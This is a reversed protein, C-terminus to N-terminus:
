LFRKFPTLKLVWSRFSHLSGARVNLTWIVCKKWSIMMSPGSLARQQQNGTVTHCVLERHSLLEHGTLASCVNVCSSVTLWYLFIWTAHSHKFSADSLRPPPERLSWLHHHGTQGHCTLILKEPWHPPSCCTRCLQPPPSHQWCPAPSGLRSYTRFTQIWTVSFLSGPARGHRNAPCGTTIIRTCHRQGKHNCCGRPQLSPFPNSPSKAQPALLVLHYTYPPWSTTPTETAGPDRVQPGPPHHCRKGGLSCQLFLKKTPSLSEM